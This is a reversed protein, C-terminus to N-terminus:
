FAPTMSEAASGDPLLTPTQGLRPLSAENYPPLGSDRSRGSLYIPPLGANHPCSREQASIMAQHKTLGPPPACGCAKTSWCPWRPGVAPSGLADHLVAAPLASERGNRNPDVLRGRSRAMAVWGAAAPIRPGTGSWAPRRPLDEAYSVLPVGQLAAPGEARVRARGIRAAWGPSAM